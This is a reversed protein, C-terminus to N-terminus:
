TQCFLIANIAQLRRLIVESDDCFRLLCVLDELVEYADPNVFKGYSKNKRRLYQM